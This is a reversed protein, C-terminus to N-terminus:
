SMMMILQRAAGALLSQAYMVHLEYLFRSLKRLGSEREGGVAQRCTSVEASVYSVRVHGDAVREM